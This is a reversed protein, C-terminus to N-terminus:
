TSISIRVVCIPHTRASLICLTSRHCFEDVVVRLQLNIILVGVSVKLPIDIMSKKMAVLLMSRPPIVAFTPSSSGFCVYITSPMSQPSTSCLLISTRVGTLLKIYNISSALRSHSSHFVSIANVLSLFASFGAFSSHCTFLISNCTICVFSLLLFDHPLSPRDLQIRLLHGLTNQSM